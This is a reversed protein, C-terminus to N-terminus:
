ALRPPEASRPPSASTYDTETGQGLLYDQDRTRPRGPTRVARLEPPINETQVALTGAPGVAGAPRTSHNM